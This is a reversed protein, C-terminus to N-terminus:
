TRYALSLTLRDVERRIIELFRFMYQCLMSGPHQETIRFLRTISDLLCELNLVLSCHM